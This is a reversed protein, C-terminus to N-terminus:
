AVEQLFASVKSLFPLLQMTTAAAITNYDAQKGLLRRARRLQTSSPMTLALITVLTHDTLTLDRLASLGLLKSEANVMTLNQFNLEDIGIRCRKTRRATRM